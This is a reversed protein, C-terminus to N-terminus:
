IRLFVCYKYRTQFGGVVSATVLHDFTTPAATGLLSCTNIKNQEQLGFKRYHLPPHEMIADGSGFM